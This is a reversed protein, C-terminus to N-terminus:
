RAARPHRRALGLLEDAEDKSVIYRLPIKLADAIKSRTILTGRQAGVEVARVMAASLGVKVAVDELTLGLEERRARLGEFKKEM